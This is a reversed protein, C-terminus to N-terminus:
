EVEVEADENVPTSLVLRRVAKAGLLLEYLDNLDEVPQDNPGTDFAGLLNELLNKAFRARKRLLGDDKERLAGGLDEAAVRLSEHLNM